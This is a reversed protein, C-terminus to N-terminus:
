YANVEKVELVQDAVYQGAEANRKDNNDGRWPLSRRYQVYHVRVVKGLCHQLSDATGRDDVSFYFYNANIMSTNRAGFGALVMEGEFTKFLNGKRSFKQLLGERFGDSYSNYYFWYVYIAVILVLLVTLLSIVKKMKKAKFNNIEGSQREV